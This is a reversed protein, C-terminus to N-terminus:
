NQVGETGYEKVYEKTNSCLEKIKKYTYDYLEEIASSEEEDQKLVEESELALFNSIDLM